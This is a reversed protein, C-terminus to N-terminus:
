VVIPVDSQEWPEPLIGPPWEAGARFGLWHRPAIVQAGPRRNLWAGWWSFSSNALVCRQANAILQLDVIASNHEFRANEVTGYRDRVESPEDSLFVVTRGDAVREVQADFYEWPLIMLGGNWDVYDGRRVHVCAYSEEVLGGYSSTFAELHEPRPTFASRVEEAVDIFFQASQFYGGYRRGDQLSGLVDAAPTEPAVEVPALRRARYRALNTLRVPRAPLERGVDLNFVSALEHSPMWFTSRLRTAAALAFAWQFMQNGLRGRLEVAIMAVIM